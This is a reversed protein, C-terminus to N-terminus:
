CSDDVANHRLLELTVGSDDLNVRGQKLTSVLSGSLAYVDVKLGVALATKPSVGGGVSGFRTGEIDQLPRLTDGWFSEDDFTDFRFLQGEMLTQRAHKDIQKDLERVPQQDDDLMTNRNAALIVIAVAPPAPLYKRYGNM